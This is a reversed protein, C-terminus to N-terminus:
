SLTDLCSFLVELLSAALVAAETSMKANESMEALRCSNGVYTTKSEGYVFMRVLVGTM